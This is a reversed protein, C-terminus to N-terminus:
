NPNSGILSGSARAARAKTPKETGEAMLRADDSRVYGPPNGRKSRVELWDGSSSVVNIRTGRSIQSIVRSASSPNEYVSTERTTEYVGPEATRRGAVPAPFSAATDPSRSATRRVAVSRSANLRDVERTAVGLRRQMASLEKQSEELKTKMETLQNSNENLQQRAQALQAEQSQIMQDKAQLQKLNVQTSLLLQNRQIYGGAFFAILATVLMAATWIFKSPISSRKHNDAGLRPESWPEDRKLRQPVPQSLLDTKCYSCNTADEEISNACHPCLRMRTTSKGIM